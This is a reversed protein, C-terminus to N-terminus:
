ALGTLTYKKALQKKEEISLTRETYDKFDPAKKDLVLSYHRYILLCNILRNTIHEDHKINNM